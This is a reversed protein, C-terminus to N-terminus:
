GSAGVPGGSGRPSQSGESLLGRRSPSVPGFSISFYEAWRKVKVGGDAVIGVHGGGGGDGDGGDEQGGRDVLVNPDNLDRLIEGGHVRDDPAFQHLDDGDVVGVLEGHPAVLLPHELVRRQVNPGGHDRATVDESVHDQGSALLLDFGELHVTWGHPKLRHLFGRRIHQEGM